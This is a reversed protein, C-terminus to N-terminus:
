VSSPMLEHPARWGPLDRLRERWEGVNPVQDWDVDIQGDYFLYGAQSIDAITPRGAVIWEHQELHGDLVRLAAQYRDYMFKTVDNEPMQKLHVMFRYTALISSLKHTDFLTWRLIDRREDENSPGYQGTQEALYDLMVPSQTMVKDGHFLVPVEGMPNIARFEPTRSEGNFFDVWRPTWDADTLALMLAVRYAHGSEQFCYLTYESM